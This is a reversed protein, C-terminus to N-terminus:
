NIRLYVSGSALLIGIQQGDKTYVKGKKIQVQKKNFEVQGVLGVLVSTNKSDNNNNGVFGPNQSVVGILADGKQYVRALGNKLNVGVIDGVQMEKEAQFYEAFDAGGTLYSHGSTINVDGDIHLKSTPDSIGIGVNKNTSLILVKASNYRLQLDGRNSINWEDDGRKLLLEANKTGSAQHIMMQASNEMRYFEWKANDTLGIAEWDKDGFGVKNQGYSYIKGTTLFSGGDGVKFDGWHTEITTWDSNLPIEFRTQLDGSEDSTEISWHNHFNGQAVSKLHAVMAAQRLKTPSYWVIAPKSSSDVAQLNFVGSKDLHYESSYGWMRKNVGLEIDKRDDDDLQTNGLGIKGDENIYISPSEEKGIYILKGSNIHLDNDSSIVIDNVSMLSNAALAYFAYPVTLLESSGLAEFAGGGNVDIELNLVVNGSQWRIDNFSGQVIEGTGIQFGFHGVSNTHVMHVEAYRLNPSISEQNLLIKVSIEKDMILSGDNLKAVAQFNIANPVQSYVINIFLPLILLLVIAKKM